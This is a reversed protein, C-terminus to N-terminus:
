PLAYTEVLMTKRIYRTDAKGNLHTFVITVGVDLLGEKKINLIDLTYEADTNVNLAFERLLEAEMAEEDMTYMPHIASATLTNRMSIELAEEIEAKCQTIFYTDMVMLMSIVFCILLMGYKIISSM